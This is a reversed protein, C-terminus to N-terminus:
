QIPEIIGVQDPVWGPLGIDRCSPRYTSTSQGEATKVAVQIDTDKEFGTDVTLKLTVQYGGPLNDICATKDPHLRAEDSASLTGCVANLAYKGYNKVVSFANTVEGMQHLIDLSTNCGLIEVALSPLPAASESATYTTTFTYTSTPTISPLLTPTSTFTELPSNNPTGTRTPTPSIILPSPTSSPIFPPTPSKILPFPSPSVHPTTIIVPINGGTCGELFFILILTAMLKRMGLRWGLTNYRFDRYFCLVASKPHQHVEHLTQCQFCGSKTQIIKMFFISLLNVSQRLYRRMSYKHFDLSDAFLM